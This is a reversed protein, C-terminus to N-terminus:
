VRDGSLLISFILLSFKKQYKRTIKKANTLSPLYPNNLVVEDGGVFNKQFNVTGSIPTLNMGKYRLLIWLQGRQENWRWTETRNKM